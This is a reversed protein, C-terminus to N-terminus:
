PIIFFLLSSLETLRSRLETSARNLQNQVTKQSISLKEAIENTSLCTEYRLRFIQRRKEPLAMVWANFLTKLEKDLINEDSVPATLLSDFSDFFTTERQEKYVVKYVQYRVAGLLFATLNNIELDNKRAWLDVFVNQLVDNCHTHSNLRKFASNYLLQFYKRYIASFACQDGGVMLQLLRDDSCQSYNEKNM